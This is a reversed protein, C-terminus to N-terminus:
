EEEKINEDCEHESCNGRCNCSHGNEHCKCDFSNNSKMNNMNKSTKNKKSM